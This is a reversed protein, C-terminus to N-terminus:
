NERPGRLPVVSEGFSATHTEDEVSCALSRRCDVSHSKAILALESSTVPPKPLGQETRLKAGLLILEQTSVLDSKKLNIIWGLRVLIDM